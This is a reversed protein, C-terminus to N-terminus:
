ASFGEPEKGAAMYAFAIVEAIVWYLAEPIEDGLELGSLIRILAKDEHLFVGHEKALQIIEEAIDGSGKASVIPAHQGDYKLAIALRPNFEQNNPNSM